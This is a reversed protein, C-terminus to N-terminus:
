DPGPLPPQHTTRVLEYPDPAQGTRPSASRLQRLTTSALYYRGRKEGHAVLLGAETLRKLDRGAVVESVQNASRYRNNTVRYGFAADMLATEAREPLSHRQLLLSVKDWVEAIERNRAALTAAQQYHARLCFRVWPLADSDPSWKGRGVKALIEYYAQTNRGLWEEISSFTPSLIDNRSLVLTQLARAMRGNGDRFPHIMTLNLHAMAALVYSDTGEAGALQEVLEDILDSVLGADPGEYVTEGSPEHVVFISSPRWQGPMKELDYSMMMFHLSRIFQPSLEFHPDAHIQVIYTLANRYGVLARVTEEDLTGPKEDDVIAVAQDVSATYGEISNSGQIARAFATRRLFGTWRSPNQSVLYRLQSRQDHLLKLVAHDAPALRPIQYIM